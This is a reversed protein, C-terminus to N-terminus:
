WVFLHHVRPLSSFVLGLRLWAVDVTSFMHFSRFIHKSRIYYTNVGFTTLMNFSRLLIVWTEYKVWVPGIFEITWPLRLSVRPASNLPVFLPSALHMDIAETNKWAFGILANGDIRISYYWLSTRLCAMLCDILFIPCCSYASNLYKQLSRLLGLFVYM